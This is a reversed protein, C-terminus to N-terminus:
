VEGTEPANNQNAADNSLADALDNETPINDDTGSVSDNEAMMETDLPSLGGTDLVDNVVDDNRSIPAGALSLRQLATSMQLMREIDADQVSETSFEPMLEMDWGNLRFITEIIDKKFAEALELLNSDIIARLNNTKDESLARSGSFDGVLIVEVGLVRAIQRESRIIADGIFRQSEPSGQLLRFDWKKVQTPNDRDGGEDRYTASDILLGTNSKRVPNSVLETLAELDARMDAETYPNDSGATEVVRRNLEEIPAEGIPIGALNTEFGLGELQRLRRYHDSTEVIGRLIGLGEPNDDITDDVIYVLKSRPLYIERQDQPARQIVGLVDGIENTDWREITRQGRPAIDKFGIVGDDRRKATWEQISFGLYRSMGARRVVREWPTEMNNLIDDILDAYEQALEARAADEIEPPVLKWKAKSLINVYFRIGAHVIDINAILNSYLRWKSRGVLRRDRENQQIYGGFNAFGPAGITSTPSVRRTRAPGIARTSTLSIQKEVSEEDQTRAKSLFRSFINAM